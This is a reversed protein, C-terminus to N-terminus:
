EEDCFFGVNGKFEYGCWHGLNMPASVYIGSSRSDVMGYFSTLTLLYFVGMVLIIKRM